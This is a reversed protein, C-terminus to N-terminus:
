LNRIRKVGWAKHALEIIEPDKSLTRACEPILVPQMPPQLMWDDVRIADVTDGNSVLVCGNVITDDYGYGLLGGMERAKRSVLGTYNIMDAMRQADSELAFGFGSNLIREDVIDGNFREKRVIAGSSIIGVTFYVDGVKLGHWPLKKAEEEAQLKKITKGMEEYQQQLEELETLKDMEFVEEFKLITVNEKEYFSTECYGLNKGYLNHSYCTDTEYDEWYTKPSSNGWSLEKEYCKSLFRKAKEEMDCHVVIKAAKFKEWDFNKFMRESGKECLMNGGRLGEGTTGTLRM